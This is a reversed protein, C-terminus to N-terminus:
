HTTCCLDVTSISAGRFTPGTGEWPRPKSCTAGTAETPTRRTAGRVLSASTGVRATWHTRRNRATGDRYDDLMGKRRKKVPVPSANKRHENWTWSFLIRTGSRGIDNSAVSPRELTPIKTVTLTNLRYGSRSFSKNPIWYMTTKVAHITSFWTTWPPRILRKTNSPIPM